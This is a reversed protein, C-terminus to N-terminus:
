SAIGNPPLDFQRGAADVKTKNQIVELVRASMPRPTWRKIQEEDMVESM